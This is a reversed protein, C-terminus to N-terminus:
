RGDIGAVDRTALVTGDPQVQALWGPRLVISTDPEQVIAPGSLRQGVALESREFVDAEVDDTSAAFRISRVAPSGPTRPAAPTLDIQPEPAVATVRWTVIEIPVNPMSLGFMSRYQSEFLETLGAFDVPWHHGSGLLVTIEHAQGRYRADVAYDFSIDSIAVGSSVLLARGEERLPECIEEIQIETLEALRRARTLALDVRVPTVLTGVASLVSAVQPFIVAPCGLLEAVGCAHVPGAGGFAFLPMGTLEIGRETAHAQAAAAMTQNVIEHIGAAMEPLSMRAESALAGVADEAARQDLRLRGGAFSDADHYGLLLNADTVTAATGGRAYCAPGPEAGASEPGVRLRALADISAISGGGAGIEVLDVSRVAAPWGSGSLHRYARAIEFSSTLHPTGSEIFCAKATTGGMDFCLMEPRSLRRAFWSGALAGAAPGSEVARIPYKAAVDSSVLGGNSSMVFIRSPFGEDHLWVTLLDLYPALVPITAANLVATVFRPYERIVPAVDASSCVPVSLAARLSEAVLRENADNAYANLFGVCVAEPETASVAATTRDIEDASPVHLVRGSAAIREEIEFILDRDVPADPLEIQLDFMDFRREDRIALSDAFGATTVMAVRAARREILANTVITTAHVFPHGIDALGIGARRLASDVGERVGRLLDDPTTLVKETVISAEVPNLLVIDTFTGGIDVALRWDSSAARAGHRTETPAM